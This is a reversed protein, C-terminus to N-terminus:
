TSNEMKQMSCRASKKEKEKKKHFFFGSVKTCLDLHKERHLRFPVDYM